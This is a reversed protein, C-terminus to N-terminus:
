VSHHTGREISSASRSSRYWSATWWGQSECDFRWGKISNEDRLLPFLFLTIPHPLPSYPPRGGHWKWDFVALLWLVTPMIAHHLKWNYPHLKDPCEIRVDERSHRRVHAFWIGSPRISSEFCKEHMKILRIQCETVQINLVSIQSIRFCLYLESTQTRSM